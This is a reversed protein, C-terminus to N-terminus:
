IPQEEQKGEFQLTLSEITVGTEQMIGAYRGLMELAKERSPLKRVVVRRNGDKGYFKIEAGDLICGYGESAIDEITVGEKLSGDGYFWREFPYTARKYWYDVVLRKVKDRFTEDDNMERIRRDLEEKVHPRAMLKSASVKVSMTTHDPKNYAKAYAMSQNFSTLLM